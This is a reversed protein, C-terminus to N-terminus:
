KVPNDAAVLQGPIDGVLTDVAVAEPINGVVAEPINGVVAELTNGAVAEPIDGVAADLEVWGPIGVAAAALGEWEVDM